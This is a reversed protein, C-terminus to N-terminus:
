MEKMIRVYVIAGDSVGASIFVAAVGVEGDVAPSAVRQDFVVDNLVKTGVIGRGCCGNLAGDSRVAGLVLDRLGLAGVGRGDVAGLGKLLVPRHTLLLAAAARDVHLRVKVSPSSLSHFQSGVVVLNDSGLTVERAAARLDRDVASLRNPVYSFLPIESCVQAKTRSHSASM